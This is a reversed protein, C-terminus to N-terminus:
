ETGNGNGGNGGGGGRAAAIALSNRQQNNTGAAINVGINGTAGRLANSDLSATNTTLNFVTQTFVVEGSLVGGLAVEGSEEFGLRGAEQGRNDFAFGGIPTGNADPDPRLPNLVAGQAAGDFDSHGLQTPSFPHQNEPEVDPNVAWNDPYYNNQQWSEGATSGAYEGAGGGAYEGQLDARLTVDVRNTIVREVPVNATENHGNAQQTYSRAKALTGSNNVSAALANAQQNNNGASVNVGINGAANALANDTIRADNTQGQYGTTQFSNEQLGWSTAHAFVFEADVASLAADNTQQNNDGATINLGINGSASGMADDSASARNPVLVNAVTNAGNMQKTDVVAGSEAGVPIAGAVDVTGRVTVLNTIVDVSGLLVVSANLSLINNNPHPDPAEQAMVPTAFLAAVAVAVPALKLRSKM